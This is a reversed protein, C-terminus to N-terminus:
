VRKRCAQNLLLSIHHVEQSLKHLIILDVIDDESLKEMLLGFIAKKQVKNLNQVFMVADNPQLVPLAENQGGTTEETMVVM